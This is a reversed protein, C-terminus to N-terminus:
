KQRIVATWVGKVVLKGTQNKSETEVVLFDMGGKGYIKSIKGTTTMVDGPRIVDFLEFEQEGHVLMLVNVGLDKDGIAAGFPKIAFTVPFTPFAIVTGYPGKKAAEEDWLLPNLGPPPGGTFGTSPAGGAVSYAFERLKELGVEYKYPGYTRGVYKPDIAM